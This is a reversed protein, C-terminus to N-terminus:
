TLSTKNDTRIVFYLSGLPWDAAGTRSGEFFFNEHLLSWPLKGGPIRLVSQVREPLGWRWRIFGTATHQGYALLFRREIWLCETYVFVGYEFAVAGVSLPRVLVSNVVQFLGYPLYSETLGSAADM